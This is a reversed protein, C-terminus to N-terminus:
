PAAARSASGSSAGSAGQHGEEAHDERQEQDDGDLGERAALLAAGEVPRAELFVDEQALQALARHGGGKLGPEADLQAALGEADRRGTERATEHHLTRGVGM